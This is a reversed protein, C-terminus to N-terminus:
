IGTAGGRKPGVVADPPSTEVAVVVIDGVVPEMFAEVALVVDSTAV